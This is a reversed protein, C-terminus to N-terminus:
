AGGAAAPRKEPADQVHVYPRRLYRGRASWGDGREVRFLGTAYPGWASVGVYEVLCERRILRPGIKVSAEIIAGAKPAADDGYVEGPKM